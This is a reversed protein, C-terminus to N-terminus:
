KNLNVFRELDLRVEQRGPKFCIIFICGINKITYAGSASSVFVDSGIRYERGDLNVFKDEHKVKTGCNGYITHGNIVQPVNSLTRRVPRGSPTLNGNNNNNNVNNMNFFSASSPNVSSRRTTTNSTATSPNYSSYSSSGSSGSSSPSSQRHSYFTNRMEAFPDETQTSMPTGISKTPYETQTSMPTGTNRTPYETQTSIPIGMSRSPHETQQQSSAPITYYYNNSFVKPKCPARRKRPPCKTKVCRKCRKKKPCKTNRSNKTTKRRTTRTKRRTTKTKRTKTKISKKKTTKRPKTKRRRVTAGFRQYFSSNINTLYDMPANLSSQYTLPIGRSNEMSNSMGALYHPSYGWTSNIGVPM